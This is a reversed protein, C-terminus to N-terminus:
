MAGNEMSDMFRIQLMGPEVYIDDLEQRSIDCPPGNSQQGGGIILFRCRTLGFTTLLRGTHQGQPAAM